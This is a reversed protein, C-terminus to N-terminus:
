VGLYLNRWYIYALPAGQSASFTLTNAGPRLSFFTSNVDILHFAGSTQAGQTLIVNKNGYETYVTMSQGAGISTSVTIYEGTQKLALTPTSCVGRFEARIPSPVDGTINITAITSRSAFTEGTGTFKLPFKLGGAFGELLLANETVDQWFPMYATLEVNVRVMLGMSEIITPAVTPICTLMRTTYNNTYVLNGEGRASFVSSVYARRQYLTAADPATILFTLVVTRAGYTIGNLTYGHQGYGKYTTPEIAANTLGDLAEILYPGTYDITISAGASNTYKLKEM